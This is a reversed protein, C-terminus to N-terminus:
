QRYDIKANLKQKQKILNKITTFGGALIALTSNVFLSNKIPSNKFVVCKRTVFDFGLGFGLWVGATKLGDKIPSPQQIRKKNNNRFNINGSTYNINQIRM